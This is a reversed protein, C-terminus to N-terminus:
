YSILLNCLPYYDLHSRLENTRDAFGAKFEIPHFEVHVVSGKLALRQNASPRCINVRCPVYTAHSNENLVSTPIDIKYRGVILKSLIRAPDDYELCVTVNLYSTIMDKIPFFNLNSELSFKSSYM